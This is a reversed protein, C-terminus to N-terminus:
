PNFGQSFHSLKGVGRRREGGGACRMPLAAGAGTGQLKAQLGRLTSFIGCEKKLFSPIYPLCSDSLIITKDSPVLAQSLLTLRCLFGHGWCSDPGWCLAWSDLSLDAPLGAGHRLFM